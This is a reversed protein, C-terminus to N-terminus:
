PKPDHPTREATITGRCNPSGCQCAFPTMTPSMFTAYDLTLEEGADIARLARVDLGFYGTNPACSHNQPAWDQPRDDWLVYAQPGVPYAYQRFWELEEEPWIAEVHSRTALRQYREEGAFVTEGAALARTARIGYGTIADGSVAYPKQAAKHRALADAIIHRLFGAAGIPDHQLIYDATGYGGEAYFVSCAFNADLFYIAGTADVRFDMRCYGAGKFTRFIVQAAQKLRSALDPDTCPINQEPHYETIKLDYTKFRPGAAFAFEIPQLALPASRDAPNGAVLVSLERGDIFEDVVVTGFEEELAAVKAALQEPTACFSQLDIGRSDGGQDPKVFVPFRLTRAARDLDAPTAVIVSRPTAVGAYWAVLKMQQKSPDFLDISPGTYPVNLTNLAHIVDISPIDWDLYGECLNVFVEVGQRSLTRLQSYVTAKKLFAHVVEDDPLLSSLDRPPDYDGYPVTSGEYSPQLVCIKM